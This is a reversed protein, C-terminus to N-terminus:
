CLLNGRQSCVLLSTQWLRSVTQLNQVSSDASLLGTAPDSIDARFSDVGIQM